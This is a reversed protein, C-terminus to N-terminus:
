RGCSHEAATTERYHTGATRYAYTCIRCRSVYTQYTLSSWNGPLHSNCLYFACFSFTHYEDAKGSVANIPRETAVVGEHHDDSPCSSFSPRRRPMLGVSLLCLFFRVIWAWPHVVYVGAATSQKLAGAVFRSRLEVNTCMWIRSMSVIPHSSPPCLCPMLQVYLCCVIFVFKGAADIAAKVLQQRAMTAMQHAAPPADALHSYLLHFCIIFLVCSVM